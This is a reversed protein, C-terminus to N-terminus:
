KNHFIKKIVSKNDYLHDELDTMEHLLAQGEDGWRYKAIRNSMEVGIVHNGM